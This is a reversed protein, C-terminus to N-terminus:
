LAEYGAGAFLAPIAQKLESSFSPANKIESAALGGPSSLDSDKLRVPMYTNDPLPTDPAVYDINWLPANPTTYEGAGSGLSERAKAYDDVTYGGVRNLIQGKNSHVLNEFKTAVDYPLAINMLPGDEPTVGDPGPAWGGKSPDYRYDYGGKDSRALGPKM